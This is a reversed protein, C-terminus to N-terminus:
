LEIGPIVEIGWVAAAIQASKVAGLTDHDTISICSLGAHCAEEVVSEPSQSGDSFFTHMHLDAFHNM